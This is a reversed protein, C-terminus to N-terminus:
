PPFSDCERRGPAAHVHQQQRRPQGLNSSSTKKSPRIRAAQSKGRDTPLLVDSNPRHTPIYPAVTEM